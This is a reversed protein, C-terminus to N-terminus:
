WNDNTYSIRESPEPPEPPEHWKYDRYTRTPVLRRGAQAKKLWDVLEEYDESRMGEAKCKARFAEVDVRDWRAKSNMLDAKFRAQENWKLHNDYGKAYEALFHIFHAVSPPLRDELEMGRM